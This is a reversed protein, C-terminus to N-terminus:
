TMNINKDKNGKTKNYGLTYAHYTAITDRELENLSTYGSGALAITRITFIDGYKYDAYIDGNGRGTFHANIRDLVGKGQGVYYINKTANYLIYVGAFNQTKAFSPSGKGGFSKKKIAFFEETTIELNNSALLKIQKKIKDKLKVRKVGFYILTSVFIVACIILIILTFFEEDRMFIFVRKIFFIIDFLFIVTM